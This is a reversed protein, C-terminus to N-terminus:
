QRGAPESASRLRVAQRQKKPRKRCLLLVGAATALLTATSPEPVLVPGDLTFGSTITGSGGEFLNLVPITSGDGAIGTGIASVGFLGNKLVSQNLWRFDFTSGLNAEWGAVEYWKTTGPAWNPVAVTGGKFLGDVGTNTALLGSFVFSSVDGPTGTLLAFYYSGRPGSIASYTEYGQFNTFTVSHTSVLTNPTNAFNVLGQGLIAPTFSLAFAIVVMRM